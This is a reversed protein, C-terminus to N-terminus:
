LSVGVPQNGGGERVCHLCQGIYLQFCAALLSSPQHEVRALLYAKFTTDWAGVKAPALVDNLLALKHVAFVSELEGLADDEFLICPM